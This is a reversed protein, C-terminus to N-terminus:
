GNGSMLGARVPRTLLALWRAQGAAPHSGVDPPMDLHEDLMEIAPRRSTGTTKVSVRASGRSSPVKSVTRRTARGGIGMGSM